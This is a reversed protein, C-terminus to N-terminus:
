VSQRDLALCCLSSSPLGIGDTPTGIGLLITLAPAEIASSSALERERRQQTERVYLEILNESVPDYM